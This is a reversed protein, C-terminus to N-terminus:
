QDDPTDTPADTPERQPLGGQPAAAEAVVDSPAASYVLTVGGASVLVRGDIAVIVEPDARLDVPTASLLRGTREDLLAIESQGLPNTAITAYVGEAPTPMLRSAQLADRGVPEDDPGFVLVGQDTLFAITGGALVTRVASAARLRGSDSLPRDRLVGTELDVSWLQRDPGLVLVRDAAGDADAALWADASLRLAPDDNLWLTESSAADVAAVGGDTAILVMRNPTVRMWRIESTASDIRTITNGTREDFLVLEGAGDPLPGGLALVGADIALANIVPLGRPLSWLVSGTERDFAALRGGREAVIVTRASLALLVDTRRVSGDLPSEIVSPAPVPEGLVDYLAPTRSVTEGTVADVRELVIGRDSSRLFTASSADLSLLRPDRGNTERFWAIQLEGPRGDDAASPTFLAVMGAKRSRLLVHSAPGGRESRSLPRVIKWRDLAQAVTEISTGIRPRRDTTAIVLRLEALRTAPDFPVGGLTPALGPATDILRSLAQAAAFPRGREVVGATYRGVIEAATQGGETITRTEPNVAAYVAALAAELAGAEAARDGIASHADAAALWADRAAPAAPYSRAVQELLSADAPESADAAALRERAQAAFREYPRPGESRVLARIQRTAVVGARVRVRGSLFEAATLEPRLLIRQLRAAAEDLRGGARDIEAGVLLSAVTQTPTAAIRDLRPLLEARTLGRTNGPLRDIMGRVTEFLRARIPDDAPASAIAAIVRDVADTVRDAAGARFAIQAFTILLGADGPNNNIRDTLEREAASWALYGFLRDGALTLLQGDDIVANGPADLPRRTVKDTDLDVLSLGSTTPIALTRGIVQARGVPSEGSYELLTTPREGSFGVLPLTSVRDREFLLIRPRRQAAVPVDALVYSPPTSDRIDVADRPAGTAADLSVLSRRDHSLVILTRVGNHTAVHAAPQHWPQSRLAPNLEERGGLTRLWRPRGSHAEVAAVVGRSDCAFVIGDVLTSAHVVSRDNRRRTAGASSLTREWVVRGTRIEVGVLRAGKLRRLRESAELTVVATGGSVLVPGSVRADTLGDGLATLRTEWKPRGTETDLLVLQRQSTGPDIEALLGEATLTVPFADDPISADRGQAVARRDPVYTWVRRLTFRDWAIVSAGTNIVVLDGAFAPYTWVTVSDAAPADPLVEDVPRESLGLREGGPDILASWMPSQGADPGITEASPTMPDTQTPLAPPTVEAIARPERGALAAWRGTLEGVPIYSSLVEALSLVPGALAPEAADPHDLLRELSLRAAHFDADELSRAALSLAAAFGARTMGFLREVRRLDGQELMARASQGFEVRYRALLTPNSCIVEHVAHRVPQYVGQENPDTLVRGPDTDLVRQLERVAEGASGAALLAPIQRLTESAAPADDLYVPPEPAASPQQALVGSALVSALVALLLAAPNPWRPKM